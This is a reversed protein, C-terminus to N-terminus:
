GRRQQIHEPPSLTIARRSDARSCEEAASVSSSHNSMRLGDVAIGEADIILVRICTAHDVVGVVQPVGFAGAGLGQPVRSDGMRVQHFTEAQHEHHM